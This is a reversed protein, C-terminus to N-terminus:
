GNLRCIQVFCVISIVVNSSIGDLSRLRRRRRGLRLGSMQRMAKEVEEEENSKSRSVFGLNKTLEERMLAQRSVELVFDVGEKGGFGILLGLNEIRNEGRARMREGKSKMRMAMKKVSNSLLYFEVGKPMHNLMLSRLITLYENMHRRQNREVAIHTMRQSEVEEKNKYSNTRRRKRRTTTMEEIAKDERGVFAEGTVPSASSNASCHNFNVYDGGGGTGNIENKLVVGKM